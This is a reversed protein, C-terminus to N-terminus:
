WPIPSLPDCLAGDSAPRWADLRRMEAVLIGNVWSYVEHSPGDPKVISAHDEEAFYRIEQALRRVPEEASERSVITHRLIGGWALAKGEVGVYLHVPRCHFRQAKLDEALRWRKLMRLFTNDLALSQLLPDPMGLVHKLLQGLSAIQAGNAPTGFTVAFGFRARM